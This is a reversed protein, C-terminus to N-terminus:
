PCVDTLDQPMACSPTTADEPRELGDSDKGYSGEELGNNAVIVFFISDPVTSIDWAHNGTAGVGCEQGSWAYSQLNARTLEAYEIIHDTALCPVGYTLSLTGSVDDYGTVVLQQGVGAEGPVTAGTAACDAMTNLDSAFYDAPTGNGASLGVIGDAADLQLTTISITGDFFMRIQLNNSNSTSYEPVGEYTVAIHDAEQKWSVTGASAPNLDDFLAAIRAERFHDELSETYDSDGSSLTVYGNSGVYFETYTTGYLSVTQGGGITVVQTDDDSLSLTTGGTPDTPFVSAAETCGEYFDNSGNPTFTQTMFATDPAGPFQETFYDPVEPTTFSYCSGGNDDSSGNGVTDEADVAYFYTTNDTLGTLLISHATAPRPEGQSNALNGCSSGYRVTGFAAEDTDFTITARRAQVDSEGVNSIVPATCDITATDTKSVNVGGLGDDADIYTATVTDGEAVQLTGAADTQSVPLSGVFTASTPNTETLLVTEGAGETTSDVTVTMTDIQSDSLNLGCDVVRLTATDECAYEPLTLAVTGDDSCDNILGGSTVLAFDADIAPTEVHGDQVIEAATVEVIWLGAEPNQVFVNEVTDYDNPAGGPVSWVGDLLGENGHYVTGSPSTVKVSLDNVRHQSAAPNGAPDAYTMTVRFAPEGAQVFTNFEVSETNTLIVSEDIFSINDRLDYLNKVNPVGWGQHVRTMDHSQGVFPYQNATNIMFAKATTMHPRNEFVTGGPDVDNGFIGDSWMQFFLGFHGCITPTAGSTGGFQGYGTGTTYTTYTDDYYFSLDPKIRGDSAPGISATDCWCDDSTDATNYHEFAGGSVVNKAWAQPRSDRNGANSQSQCHVIDWDFLLTDHEASITSYETTRGDGVSATQFVAFFPAQLLEGTHDYRNPGNLGVNTYDAAIPQGDPMLGRAQADGTGDGFLIGLCATGHNDNGVAGGHELPPRSVFDPHTINFGTDFSEGRVGAGTYGAVAELDDVGGQARALDIDKEMPTWRDVFQIEDWQLVDLLQAGTLTAVMLYKGAHHSDVFGGISEIRQALGKKHEIESEFILINYRQKHFPDALLAAANRLPAELRYAPHYPGIWRVFSLQEAQQRVDASM